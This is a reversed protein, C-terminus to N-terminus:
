MPAMMALVPNNTYIIAYDLMAIISNVNLIM